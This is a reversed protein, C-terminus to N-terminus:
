KMTSSPKPRLSSRQTWSPNTTWREPLTKRKMSSEMSPLAISGKPSKESSRSVQELRKVHNETQKLHEQFGRKLGADTAKEVMEPLSKVIQKEAYYIDRLTHLFLDDMTKIDESFLGLKDEENSAHQDTL